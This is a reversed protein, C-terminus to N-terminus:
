VDVPDMLLRSVLSENHVERCGPRDEVSSPPRGGPRFLGSLVKLTGVGIEGHTFFPSTRSDWLVVFSPPTSPSDGSFHNGRPRFTLPACM